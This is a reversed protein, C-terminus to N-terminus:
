RGRPPKTAVLHVPQHVLDASDVSDGPYLTIENPKDPQLRCPIVAGVTILRAQDAPAGGGYWRVAPASASIELKVKLLSQGSAGGAWSGARLVEVVAVDVCTAESRVLGPLSSDAGTGTSDFTQTSVSAPTLAVRARSVPVAQMPEGMPTEEEPASHPYFWLTNDPFPLPARAGYPFVKAVLRADARFSPAQAASSDVRYWIRGADPWADVTFQVFFYVRDGRGGKEVVKRIEICTVCTRRAEALFRRRGKRVTAVGYMIVAVVGLVALFQDVVPRSTLGGRYPNPCSYTDASGGCGGHLLADTLFGLLVLIAALVVSALWVSHRRM